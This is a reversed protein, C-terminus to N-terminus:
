PTRRVRHLRAALRITNDLGDLADDATFSGMTRALHYMGDALRLNEAHDPKQSSIWAAEFARWRQTDRIM